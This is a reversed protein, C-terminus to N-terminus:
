LYHSIFRFATRKNVKLSTSTKALSSCNASSISIWLNCCAGVVTFYRSVIHVPRSNASHERYLLVCVSVSNGFLGCCFLRLPSVRLANAVQGKL